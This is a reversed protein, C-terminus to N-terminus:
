SGTPLTPDFESGPDSPPLPLTAFVKRSHPRRRGHRDTLADQRGNNQVFFEYSNDFQKGLTQQGRLVTPDDYHSWPAGPPYSVYPAWEGVGEVDLLQALQGLPGLSGKERLAKLEALSFALADLTVPEFGAYRGETTTLDVTVDDPIASGLGYGKGGALHVAYTRDGRKRDILHLLRSPDVAALLQKAEMISVADVTIRATFRNGPQVTRAGQHVVNAGHHPRAEFRPRVPRGNQSSWFEQQALPDSHWYFKRGNVKRLSKADVDSGWHAAVDGVPRDYDADRPELYFGGASPNPTGRPALPFPQSLTADHAVAADFRVRAGFAAQEGLGHREGETDASGFLSCSPCLGVPFEDEGDADGLPFPHQCALSEARHGERAGTLREAVQHDGLDRWIVSLAIEVIVDGRDRHERRVWVVDGPRLHLSARRREAIVRKHQRKDKRDVTGSPMDWWMVNAFEERTAGPRRDEVVDRGGFVALRYEDMVSPPVDIIEGTVKGTAWYCHTIDDGGHHYEPRAATDSVLLYRQGVVPSIAATGGSEQTKPPQVVRASRVARLEQRGLAGAERESINSIEVIAGSSPKGPLREHLTVAEVWVEDACIAVKTATGARVESVVALELGEGRANAENDRNPPNRHAPRYGADLIRLCGNFLAEHTSRVVGKISSGPIRVSSGDFWGDGDASEPLLVPTKLTWTVTITGTLTANGDEDLRAGADRPITRNVQRGVPAFSYPNVFRDVDGGRDRSDTSVSADRRAPM